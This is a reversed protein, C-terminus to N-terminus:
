LIGAAIILESYKRVHEVHWQLTGDPDRRVIFMVQVELDKKGEDERLTVHVKEEDHYGQYIRTPRSVRWKAETGLTEVARTIGNNKYQDM